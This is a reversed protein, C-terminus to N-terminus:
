IPFANTRVSHEGMPFSNTRVDVERMPFANTRIDVEGMPFAHKRVDVRGGSNEDSQGGAIEYWEENDGTHAPKPKISSKWPQSRKDHASQEIIAQAFNEYYSNSM